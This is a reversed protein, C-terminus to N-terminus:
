HACRALVVRPDSNLTSAVCFVAVASFSATTNCRQSCELARISSARRFS